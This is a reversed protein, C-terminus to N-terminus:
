AAIGRHLTAVLREFTEDLDLSLRFGGTAELMVFGHLTSRVIRVAHLADDGTLGYGRIAAVVVDVPARMAEPDAGFGPGREVATYVGPHENAFARYATAIATLAEEGSLGTAALSLQTGLTEAGFEAIRRRLDDVGDVHAYLSPTRIGLRKALRALTLQDFGVEDALKGAIAVVLTENYGPRGM